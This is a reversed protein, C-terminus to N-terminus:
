KKTMGHQFSKPASIRREWFWQIELVFYKKNGAIM